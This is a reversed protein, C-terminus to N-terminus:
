GTRSNAVPSARTRLERGSGASMAGISRAGRRATPQGNPHSGSHVEPLRASGLARCHKHMPRRSGESPFMHGHGSRWKCPAYNRKKLHFDCLIVDGRVSNHIPLFGPRRSARGRSPAAPHGHGEIVYEYADRAEPEDDVILAREIRGPGQITVM